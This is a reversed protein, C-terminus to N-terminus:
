QPPEPEHIPGLWMANKFESPKGDEPIVPELCDMAPVNAYYRGGEGFVSLAYPVGRCPYEATWVWWWGATDPPAARWKQHNSM